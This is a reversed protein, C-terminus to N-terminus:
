PKTVNLIVKLLELAGQEMDKKAQNSDSKQKNRAGNKETCTSLILRLRQM